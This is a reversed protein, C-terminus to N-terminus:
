PPQSSPTFLTRCVMIIVGKVGHVLADRGLAAWYDRTRSDTGLMMTTGHSLFLVPAMPQQGKPVDSRKDMSHQHLLFSYVAVSLTRFFISDKILFAKSKEVSSTRARGVWGAHSIGAWM